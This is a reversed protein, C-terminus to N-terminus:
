IAALWVLMATFVASVAIPLLLAGVQTVQNRDFPRSSLHGQAGAPSEVVSANKLAFAFPSRLLANDPARLRANMADVIWAQGGAKADVPAVSLKVLVEEEAHPRPAGSSAGEKVLYRGTISLVKLHFHELEEAKSLEENLGLLLGVVSGHTSTKLQQMSVNRLHLEVVVSPEAYLGSTAGPLYAASARKSLLGTTSFPRERVADTLTDLHPGFFGGSMYDFPAGAHAGDSSNVAASENSRHSDTGSALLSSPSLGASSQNEAGSTAIRQTANQQALALEKSARADLSPLGSQPM